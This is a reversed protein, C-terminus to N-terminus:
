ISHEVVLPKQEEWFDRSGVDLHSIFVVRKSVFLDFFIVFRTGLNIIKYFHNNFHQHNSLIKKNKNFSVRLNKELRARTINPKNFPGNPGAKSQRAVM